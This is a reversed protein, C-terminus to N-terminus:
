EVIYYSGLVQITDGKNYESLDIKIYGKATITQKPREIDKKITSILMIVMIFIGLNCAWNLVQKITLKNDQKM